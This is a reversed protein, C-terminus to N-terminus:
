TQLKERDRDKELLGLRLNIGKRCTFDDETQGQKNQARTERLIKVSIFRPGLGRQKERLILVRRRTGNV